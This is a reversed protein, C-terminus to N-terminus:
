TANTKGVQIAHTGIGGAGGHVLLVEGPGPRPDPVETWDWVDTGGSGRITIAHM